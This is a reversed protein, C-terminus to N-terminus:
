FKVSNFDNPKIFHTDESADKKLRIPRRGMEEIRGATKMIMEISIKCIDNENELYISLYEASRATLEMRACVLYAVAEAELECQTISLGTRSNWEKGAPDGGIHGLLIHALEHCLTAYKTKTEHKQNLEISLKFKSNSSNRIATGAHSAKLDAEQVFIGLRECNELTKSYTNLNLEGSVSFLNGAKPPLPRGDTDEVDYVVMVPGMPRLIIIPVASQKVTRDFAKKWHSATAWHTAMPRQLYVLMNNFPSYDKLKAVFDLLEIILNPSRLELSRAFLEDLTSEDNSKQKEDRGLLENQLAEVSLYKRAYNGISHNNRLIEAIDFLYLRIGYGFKNTLIRVFDEVPLILEGDSAMRHWLMDASFNVAAEIASLRDKLKDTLNGLKVSEHKEAPFLEPQQSM